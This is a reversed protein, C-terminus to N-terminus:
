SMKPTQSKEKTQLDQNRFFVFVLTSSQNPDPQEKNIHEMMMPNILKQLKM